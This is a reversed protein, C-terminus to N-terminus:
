EVIKLQPKMASITRTFMGSSFGLLQNKGKIRQFLPTSQYGCSPSKSKVIYCEVDPHQQMFNVAYSKLADTVDCTHNLVGFVHIQEAGQEM